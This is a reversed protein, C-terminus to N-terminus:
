TLSRQARRRSVWTGASCVDILTRSLAWNWSSTWRANQGVQLELKSSWKKYGQAEAVDSYSGRPLAAFFYTGADSSQGKRSVNTEQNTSRSRLM